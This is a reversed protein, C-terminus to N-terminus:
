EGRSLRGEDIFALLDMEPIDANEMKDVADYNVNEGNKKYESEVEPSFGKGALAIEQASANATNGQTSIRKTTLSSGAIWGTVNSATRVQTWKGNIALVRVDNGYAVKGTTSAFFGTSSKLNASNVNVYLTDGVKQAYLGTVCLCFLVIIIVHKM